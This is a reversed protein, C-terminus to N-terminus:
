KSGFYAAIDRLDQDNLRSLQAKMMEALAGQRKGEQYDKMSQFLYQENQGNINPYSPNPAIGDTGHCFICSPSKVKGLEPDGFSTYAFTLPSVLSLLLLSRIM